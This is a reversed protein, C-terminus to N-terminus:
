RNIVIKELAITERSCEAVISENWDSNIFAEVKSFKKALDYGRQIYIDESFWVAKEFSLQRDGFDFVIGRTLWVDYIQKGREFLRQNEQVIEVGRITTKFPTRVLEKQDVFSYRKEELTWVAVDEITGFYDLPETFSYLYVSGDETEIQVVQSSSNVYNFPDHKIASLERGILSQLITIEKEKLRIDIVKM